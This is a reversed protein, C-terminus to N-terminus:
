WFVDGCCIRLRNHSLTHQVLPDVQLLQWAALSDSSGEACRRLLACCASVCQHLAETGCRFARGLNAAPIGALADFVSAPDNVNIPRGTPLAAQPDFLANLLQGLASACLWTAECWHARWALFHSPAPASPALGFLAPFSLSSATEDSTPLLSQQSFPTAMLAGSAAQLAGLVNLTIALAPAVIDGLQRCITPFLAAPITSRGTGECANFAGNTSSGPANVMALRRLWFLAVSPLATLCALQSLAFPPGTAPATTLLSLPLCDQLTASLNTAIITIQKGFHPVECNLRTAATGILMCALGRQLDAFGTLPNKLDNILQEAQQFPMTCFFPIRCLSLLRRWKLAVSINQQFQRMVISEVLPFIEVHHPQQLYLLANLQEDDTM